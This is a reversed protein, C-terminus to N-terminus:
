AQIAKDMGNDTGKFSKKVLILKNKFTQLVSEIQRANRAIMWEETKAYHKQKGHTAGVARGKADETKLELKAALFFGDGIPTM